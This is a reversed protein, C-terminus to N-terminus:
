SSSGGLLDGDPPVFDADSDLEPDLWIAFQQVCENCLIHFEDDVEMGNEIAEAHLHHSIDM